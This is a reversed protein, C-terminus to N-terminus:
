ILGPHWLFPEKINEGIFQSDMRMDVDLDLDSLQFTHSGSNSSNRFNNRRYASNDDIDNKNNISQEEGNSSTMYSAM